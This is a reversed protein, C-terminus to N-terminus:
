GFAVTSGGSAQVVTQSQSINFAIYKAAYAVGVPQVLNGTGSPRTATIGGATGSLYVRAGPTFSWSADTMAGVMAFSGKQGAAMDVLAVGIAPIPTGADADALIAQGNADIGVLQGKAIAVAAVIPVASDKDYRTIEM